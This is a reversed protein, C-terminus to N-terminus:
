RGHRPESQASAAAAQSVGTTREEAMRIVPEVLADGTAGDPHAAWGAHFGLVLEPPVRAQHAPVVPTGATTMSPLWANLEALTTPSCLETKNLILLDADLLQQRVLDGLTARREPEARVRVTGAHLELQEAPVDLTRAAQALLKDRAARAAVIAANGAVITVRSALSGICFPSTDTDPAIVHVHALPIDLEHAVVQSFM